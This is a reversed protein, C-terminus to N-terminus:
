SRWGRRAGGSGGGDGARAVSGEESRWGRHAGGGGGEVERGRGFCLRNLGPLLLILMTGLSVISTMAWLTPM